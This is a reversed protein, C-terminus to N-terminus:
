IYQNTKYYCFKKILALQLFFENSERDLRRIWKIEEM